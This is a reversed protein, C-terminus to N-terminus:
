EIQERSNKIFMYYAAAFIIVYGIISYLDPIEGFVIIGLISAFVVNTYNFISIDKAPAYKYALTTGFQGVTAFVGALILYIIDKIDMVVFNFLPSDIIFMLISISVVSFASFYFVVTYYAEKKGLVRLVTYAAGAAMAALISTIYPFIVVDLTPKMIFLTGIFAIAIM